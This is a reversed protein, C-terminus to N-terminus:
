QIFLLEGERPTNYLRFIDGSRPDKCCLCHPDHCTARLMKGRESVTTTIGKSSPIVMMSASTHHLPNKVVIHRKQNPYLTMM